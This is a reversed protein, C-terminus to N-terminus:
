ERYECSDKQYAQGVLEVGVVFRSGQRTCYRTWGLCEWTEGTVRIMEPVAVPEPAQLQLGGDSVNRVTVPIPRGRRHLMGGGTTHARGERRLEMHEAPGDVYINEPM